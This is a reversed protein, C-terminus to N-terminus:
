IGEQLLHISIDPRDKNPIKLPVLIAWSNHMSQKLLYEATSTPSAPPPSTYRQMFWICDRGSLAWHPVSMLLWAIVPCGLLNPRQSPYNLIGQSGLAPDGAQVHPGPFVEWFFYSRQYSCHKVREKCTKENQKNPSQVNWIFYHPSEPFWTGVGGRCKNNCNISHSELVLDTFDTNKTTHQTAM